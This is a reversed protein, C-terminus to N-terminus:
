LPEWHVLGAHIFCRKSFVTLDVPNPLRVDAVAPMPRGTDEFARDIQALCVIILDRRRALTRLSAVQVSLPPHERRQDLLQLYDVVVLTGPDATALEGAIHTASIHDSTEIRLRNRFRAPDKELSGIRRRVEAESYELTFFAVSGGRRLAAVALELSFATKGQGPRAALLVLDGPVLQNLITAPLGEARSAGTARQGPHYTHRSMEM